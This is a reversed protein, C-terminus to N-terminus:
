LGLGIGTKDQERSWFYREHALRPPGDLLERWPGFATALVPDDVLESVIWEVEHAEFLFVVETATLYVAHRDFRLDGPEFPPGQALLLEAEQHAGDKLRAVILLREM